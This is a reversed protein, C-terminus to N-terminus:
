LTQHLSIERLLANRAKNVTYFCLFIHQELDKLLQDFIPQTKRLQKLVEQIPHRDRGRELAFRVHAKDGEVATQLRDLLSDITEIDNVVFTGNEAADLQKLRAREKRESKKPICFPAAAIAAFGVAAHAAIIAASVVAATTTAILCVACGATSHRLLRIRSRCKRRDHQINRRLDSFSHRLTHFHPFIFPNEHQDFQLFLDYAHDCQPQSLFSSDAPLVSILESLPTYIHRARHVSRCLLLCLHSTTESHDFYSSVLRTLTSSPKANALVERISNPDPQLVQDLVYRHHSDEDNEDELHHVEPPAQIMSRIENYSPAQVAIDYERSVNPSTASTEEETSNGQSHSPPPLPSLNPASPTLSNFSLCELM